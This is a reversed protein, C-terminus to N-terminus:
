LPGKVKDIKRCNEFSTHLLKGDLKSIEPIEM